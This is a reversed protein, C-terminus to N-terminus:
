RLIPLMTVRFLLASVEGAVYRRQIHLETTSRFGTLNRTSPEIGEMDELKPLGQATSGYLSLRFM